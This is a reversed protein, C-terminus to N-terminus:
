TRMADSPSRIEGQFKNERHKVLSKHFLFIANKSAEFAPEGWM